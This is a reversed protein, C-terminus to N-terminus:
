FTKNKQFLPDKLQIKTKAKDVEIQNLLDKLNAFKMEPRLYGLLLVRLVRGYFDEKFEHLIHVEFTVGRKDNLTPREGVNVVCEYVNNEENKLKTFRYM